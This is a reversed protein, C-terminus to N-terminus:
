RHTLRNAWYEAARSFIYQCDNTNDLGGPECELFRLAHLLNSAASKNDLMLAGNQKSLKLGDIGCVLPVHLYTPTPFGFERQLAIQRPTAHLLDAGRVVHTIGQLYDDIVVVFQYSFFGDSRKVVYDGCDVDLNEAVEGQLRDTFEISGAPIRLRTTLPLCGKRSSEMLLNKERCVGSYVREGTNPNIHFHSFSSRTCECLYLLKKELLLQLYEEYIKKRPSQYIPEEAWAFGHAELCSLIDLAWANRCRVEDIDEIRVM